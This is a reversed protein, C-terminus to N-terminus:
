SSPTKQPDIVKILEKFHKILEPKEDLIKLLEESIPM